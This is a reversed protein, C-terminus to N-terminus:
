AVNPASSTSSASRAACCNMSRHLDPTRLGTSNPTISVTSGPFDFRGDVGRDLHEHAGIACGTMTQLWGIAVSLRAPAAGASREAPRSGQLSLMFRLPNQDAGTRAGGHAFKPASANSAQIRPRGAAVDNAAM